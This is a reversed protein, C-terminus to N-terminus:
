YKGDRVEFHTPKGLLPRNNQIWDAVWEILTDESVSPKGFLRHSKGAENLWATEAETGTITVPKGFLKAFRGAVDRVSLIQEGTVNLLFPDPAAAAHELSRITYRIADGQWVCNFYGMGVDVPEDAFVKSALDVLVGYRLDVSYNLRILSIPTGHARSSDIFAAERGLCSIAYAGVPDAPDNETSGGPDPRVFPYVCGTSLAVTPVGAYREAVLAPMTENFLRLTEPSDSTGFKIGALFFLAVAEPMRAVNAPDTLDLSVTRIGSEEFLDRTSANSFRSVAIVERSSGLSDFGRRLMRCLHFGMKGGAGAVVINGSIRKLGQIVGDDPRTAVDNLETISRPSEPM